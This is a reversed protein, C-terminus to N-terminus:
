KGCFDYPGDQWFCELATPQPFVALSYGEGHVGKM